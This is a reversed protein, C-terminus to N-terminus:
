GYISCRARRAISRSPLGLLAWCLVAPARDRGERAGRRYTGVRHRARHFEAGSHGRALARAMRRRARSAHPAAAHTLAPGGHRDPPPNNRIPFLPCMGLVCTLNTLPLTTGWIVCSPAPFRRHTTKRKTGDGARGNAGWISCCLKRARPGLVGGGAPRAAPSRQEMDPVCRPLHARGRREQAASLGRSGVVNRRVDGCSAGVAGWISGDAARHSPACAASSSWWWRSRRTHAVRPGWAARRLAPM